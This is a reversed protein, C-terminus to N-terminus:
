NIRFKKLDIEFESFKKEFFNVCDNDLFKRWNGTLGNKIQSESDDIYGNSISRGYLKEIKRIHDPSSMELAQYFKSQYNKRLHDIDLFKLVRSFNKEPNSIMDEYTLMLVNKPYLDHTLKFSLYHKLYMNLGAIKIFEKM